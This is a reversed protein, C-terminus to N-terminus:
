NDQLAQLTFYRLTTGTVNINQIDANARHCRTSEFPILNENIFRIKTWIYIYELCDSIDKGTTLKKSFCLAIKNKTETKECERGKDHEVRSEGNM